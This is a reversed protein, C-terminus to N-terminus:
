MVAVAPEAVFVNTMVTVPVVKVRVPGLLTEALLKPVKTAVKNSAPLAATTGPWVKDTLERFPRVAVVVEPPAGTVSELPCTLKLTVGPLVDAVESVRVTFVTYAVPGLRVFDAVKVIVWIAKANVVGLASAVGPEAVVAGPSNAIM